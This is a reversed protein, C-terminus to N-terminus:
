DIPRVSLILNFICYLLWLLILPNLLFRRRSYEPQVETRPRLCALVRNRHKILLFAGIVGLIIYSLPTLLLINTRTLGGLAQPIISVANNLAHLLYATKISGTRLTIYGWAMGSLFPVFMQSFNGHGISFFAASVLVAFFDGYPKLASLLLGRTFFEEYLPGILISLLLWCIIIYPRDLRGFLELLENSSQQGFVQLLNLVPVSLLFGVLTLFFCIPVYYGLNRWAVKSGAWVSRLSVGLLKGMLPLFLAFNLAYTFFMRWLSQELPAAHNGAIIGVLLAPILPTLQTLFCMLGVRTASSKKGSKTEIM